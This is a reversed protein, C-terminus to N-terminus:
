EAIAAPSIFTAGDLSQFIQVNPLNGLAYFTYIRDPNITVQNSRIIRNSKSAELDMRYRKAPIEEYDSVDRFEIYSFLPKEDLLINVEPANPSLHVARVKSYGKQAKEKDEKVEVLKLDNLNGSVAITILEGDKVEIPERLLPNENTDVAYVVMEYRGEPVYVYPSFQTFRIGKFFLSDNIYIDVADSDPVAHLARILSYEDTYNRM